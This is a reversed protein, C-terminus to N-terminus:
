TSGDQYRRHEFTKGCKEEGINYKVKDFIAESAFEGAMGVVAGGVIGGILGGLLTGIGYFVTTGIASGVASGSLGGAAGIVTTAVKKITNKSSHNEKDRQVIQYSDYALSAAMIFPAAHNVANLAKGVARSAKAEFATMPFHPDEVGTIAKNVNLHHYPVNEHPKDVRIFWKSNGRSSKVTKDLVTLINSAHPGRIEIAYHAANISAGIAGGRASHLLFRGITESRNNKEDKCEDEPFHEEPLEDESSPSDEFAPTM